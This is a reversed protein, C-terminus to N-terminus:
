QTLENSLSWIVINAIYEINQLLKITKNTLCSNDQMLTLGQLTYKSLCDITFQHKIFAVPYRAQVTIIKMYLM